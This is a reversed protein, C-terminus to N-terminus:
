GLSFPSRGSPSWNNSKHPKKNTQNNTKEQRSKSEKKGLQQDNTMNLFLVYPDSRIAKEMKMQDSDLPLFLFNIGLESQWNPTQGIRYCLIHVYGSIVRSNKNIPEM